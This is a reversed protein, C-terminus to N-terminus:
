VHAGAVGPGRDKGNEEVHGEGDQPEHPDYLSSFLAQIEHGCKEDEMDYAAHHVLFNWLM